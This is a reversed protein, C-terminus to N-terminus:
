FRVYKRMIPHFLETRLYMEAPTEEIINIRSILNVKNTNFDSWSNVRDDVFLVNSIGADTCAKVIDANTQGNPLALIDVPRKINKEIGTKSRQIENLLCNYDTLTSLTDHSYTHSGIEVRYKTCEAVQGWNMM